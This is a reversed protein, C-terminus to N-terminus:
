EVEKLMAELHAVRQEIDGNTKELSALRHDADTATAADTRTKLMQAAYKMAFIALILALILITLTAFNNSHEFM